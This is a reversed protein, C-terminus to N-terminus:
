STHTWYYGLACLGVAVLNNALLNVIALWAQGGEWLRLTDWAFASFTTFSGLLGVTLILKLGGPWHPQAQVWGMFFGGVGNVFLTAWPFWTSAMWQGAQWRLLAGVMAAALIGIWLMEQGRFGLSMHNVAM